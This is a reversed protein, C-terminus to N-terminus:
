TGSIAASTSGRSWDNTETRCRRACRSRSLNSHVAGFARTTMRAYGNGNAPAALRYTGMSDPALLLGLAYSLRLVSAAIMTPQARASRSDIM